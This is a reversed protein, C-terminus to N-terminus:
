SRKWSAEDNRIIRGSAPTPPRYSPASDSAGYHNERFDYKTRKLLPQERRLDPLFAQLIVLKETCNKHPM